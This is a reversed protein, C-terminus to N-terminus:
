CQKEQVLSMHNVVYCISKRCELEDSWDGCNTKGDCVQNGQLCSQNYCMFGPYTCTPKVCESAVPICSGKCLKTGEGCTESLFVHVYILEATCTRDLAGM